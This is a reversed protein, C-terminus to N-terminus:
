GRGRDRLFRIAEQISESDAKELLRKLEGQLEETKEAGAEEEYEVGLQDCIFRVYQDPKVPKELYFKPGSFTKGALFDQMDERGQEDTAHATVIV